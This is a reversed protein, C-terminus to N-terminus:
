GAGERTDGKVDRAKELAVTALEPTFEPYLAVRGSQGTIILLRAERLGIHTELKCGLFDTATQVALQTITMQLTPNDSLDRHPLSAKLKAMTIRANSPTINDQRVGKETDQM